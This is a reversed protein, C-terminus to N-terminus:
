PADRAERWLVFPSHAETVPVWGAGPPQGLFYRRVGKYRELDREGGVVAISLRPLAGSLIALAQMMQPEAGVEPDGQVLVVAGRGARHRREIVRVANSLTRDLPLEERRTPPGSFQSGGCSCVYGTVSDPLLSLTHPRGPTRQWRYIVSLVRESGGERQGPIFSCAIWLVVSIAGVLGVIWGRLRHRLAALGVGLVVAAAPVLPFIYRQHRIKLGMHILLPVLLWLLIVWRHRGRRFFLPLVLFATLTLPGNFLLPLALLYHKIGGALSIDGETRLMGHATTHSTLLDAMRHMRGAWYPATALVLVALCLAAGRLVRLLAARDRRAALLGTALVHAAPFFLFFLSTPKALTALGAVLGFLAADRRRRFGDSRLLFVVAAATLCLAPFDLGITRWGAYAAPMLSFLAASLLGARRGHCRRGIAYVSVLAVVFFLVNAARLVLATKGLALGALASPLLAVMSYHGNIERLDGLLALPGFLEADSALRAVGYYHSFADPVRELYFADQRLWLLNVIFHVVAILALLVPVQHRDLLDLSRRTLARITAATKM